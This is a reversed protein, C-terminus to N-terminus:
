SSSIVLWPWSTSRKRVMVVSASGPMSARIAGMAKSMALMWTSLRRALSLSSITMVAPPVGTQARSLGSPKRASSTASATEPTFWQTPGQLWRRSRSYVSSTRLSRIPCTIWGHRKVSGSGLSVM